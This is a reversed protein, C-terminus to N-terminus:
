SSRTDADETPHVAQARLFVDYKDYKAVTGCIQLGYEGTYWHAIYDGRVNQARSENTPLCLRILCQRQGEFRRDLQYPRDLRCGIAFFSWSPM